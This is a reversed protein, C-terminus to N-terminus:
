YSEKQAQRLAYVQMKKLMIQWKLIHMSVLLLGRRNCAVNQATTPWFDMSLNTRTTTKYWLMQVNIGYSIHEVLALSNNFLSLGLSGIYRASSEEVWIATTVLTLPRTSQRSGNDSKFTIEKITKCATLFRTAATSCSFPGLPCIM